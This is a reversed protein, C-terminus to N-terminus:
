RGRGRVQHARSCGIRDHERCWDGDGSADRSFSLPFLPVSGRWVRSHIEASRFASLVTFDEADQIFKHLMPLYHPDTVIGWHLRAERQIEHRIADGRNALRWVDSPAAVEDPLVLTLFADIRSCALVGGQLHIRAVDEPHAIRSDLGIGSM